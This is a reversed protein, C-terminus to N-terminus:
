VEVARVLGEGELRELWPRLEGLELGLAQAVEEGSKGAALLRLLPQASGGLATRYHMHLDTMPNLADRGRLTLRYRNREWGLPEDPLPLDPCAECPTFRGSDGYLEAAVRLYPTDAQYYTYGQESLELGDFPTMESQQTHVRLSLALGLLSRMLLPPVRKLSLEAGGTCGQLIARLASEGDRVRPAPRESSHAAAGLRGREFFIVGSETSAHLRLLGSFREEALRRTLSPLDTDVARLRADVGLAPLARLLASRAGPSASPLTAIPSAEHPHFSFRWYGSSAPDEEGLRHQQSAKGRQMLTILTPGEPSSAELWLTGSCKLTQLSELLTHESINELEGHVVGMVGYNM